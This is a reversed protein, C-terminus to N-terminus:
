KREEYHARVQHHTGLDPRWGCHCVVYNEHPDDFWVRFGGEGSSQGRHHEANNHVAIKEKPVTWINKPFTPACRPRPVRGMNM